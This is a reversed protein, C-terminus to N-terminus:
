REDDAKLATVTLVGANRKLEYRSVMTNGRYRSQIVVYSKNFDQFFLDRYHNYTVFHLPFHNLWVYYQDLSPGSEYFLRAEDLPLRSWWLENAFSYMTPVTQLVAWRPFTTGTLHFQRFFVRQVQPIFVKGLQVAYLLVLLVMLSYVKWYKGNRTKLVQGAPLKSFYSKM